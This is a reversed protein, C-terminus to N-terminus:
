CGLELEVITKLFCVKLSEHSNANEVALNIREIKLLLSKNVLKSLVRVFSKSYEFNM